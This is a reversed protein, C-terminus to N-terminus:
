GAHKVEGVKDLYDMLLEYPDAYTLNIKIQKKHNVYISDVLLDMVRRDISPIKQYEKLREIWKQAAQLATGLNAKDAGVKAEEELLQEYQEQYRGKIYDYEEKDILRETLDVLLQEMKLEMKKRKKTIDEHQQGVNEQYSLVGPMRKVDEILREMDVGIQVQQNLLNTIANIITEQRIYHSSCRTHGSDRYVNCDYFIRSPTKANPRACGKVATMLSGCEACYVKKRLIERYDADPGIREKFSSRKELEERNVEQVRDFLEKSIIPTHANEIINWEEMGRRRKEMGIKDRKVKGHVRNGIYVSDQTIKRVTGRLWGADKYVESKMIGRLYRLRGPCPIGEKNLVRAITNFGMGEARMEFIKRVVDAAEQDIDYTVAEPNRLYGYPVSSSSPLYTGSSMKASIGSRIKKSIDKVYYDNMVMKLPLTLASADSHEDMSDYGDNISILRVGMGPFIREVYESTLVFHRGLRSIDKIIVCNIRGSKLDELMRAFDPRKFNMGTYGHDAYTDVFRIDPHETLYYLGIKKQNGISNQEIDDGDEVSLRQYLGALCEKTNFSAKVTNQEARSKRAM